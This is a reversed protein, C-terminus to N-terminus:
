PRRGPLYKAFLGEIADSGAYGAAMVTIPATDVLGTVAGAAGGLVLSTVTIRWDFQDRRAGDAIWKRLGLVVRVGQGLVGLGFLLALQAATM